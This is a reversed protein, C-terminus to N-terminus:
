VGRLLPLAGVDGSDSKEMTIGLYVIVKIIINCTFREAVAQDELVQKGRKRWPINCPKEVYNAFGLQQEMANQFM